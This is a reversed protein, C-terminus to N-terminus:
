SQRTLEVTLVRRMAQVVDREAFREGALTEAAALAEHLRAPGAARVVAIIWAELNTVDEPLELADRTPAPPEPVATRVALDPSPERGSIACHGWLTGM